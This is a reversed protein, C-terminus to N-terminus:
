LEPEEAVYKLMVYIIISITVLLGLLIIAVKYNAMAKFCGCQAGQTTPQLVKLM